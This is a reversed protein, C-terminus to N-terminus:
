DQKMRNEFVLASLIGIYAWVFNSNQLNYASMMITVGFFSTALINLYVKESKLLFWILYVLVFIVLLLVFVGSESLLALYTNHTLNSNLSGQPSFTDSIKPYNGYGVGVIPNAKWMEIATGWLRFRIDGSVDTRSTYQDIHQSNSTNDAVKSSHNSQVKSSEESGCSTASNSESNQASGFNQQICNSQSNQTYSIKSALHVSASILPISVAILILSVLSTRLWFLRVRRKFLFVVFGIVFMGLIAFQAGRSNALGLAFSLIVVPIIWKSEGLQFYLVLAFGISVILYTAFLNPDQFGGSLRSYSYLLKGSLANPAFAMVVFAFIGIASILTSTVVWLKLFFNKEISNSRLYLNAVVFGTVIGICLKIFEYFNPFDIRYSNAVLSIFVLAIFASSVFLYKKSFSIQRPSNLLSHWFKPSLLILLIVLLSPSYNATGIFEIYFSVPLSVILLQALPIRVILAVLVVCVSYILAFSQSDIFLALFLLSGFVAVKKM